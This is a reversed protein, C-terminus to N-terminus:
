SKPAFDENSEEFDIKVQTFKDNLIDSQYRKNVEYLWDIIAEISKLQLQVFAESHSRVVCLKGYLQM